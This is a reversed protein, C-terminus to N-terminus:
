SFSSVQWINLLMSRHKHLVQLLQVRRLYRCIETIVKWRMAGFDAAGSWQDQDCNRSVRSKCLFGFKVNRPAVEREATVKMM